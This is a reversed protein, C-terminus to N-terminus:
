PESTEAYARLAVLVGADISVSGPEITLTCRNLEDGRISFDLSVLHLQLDDLFVAADWPAPGSSEIRLHHGFGKAGDSM